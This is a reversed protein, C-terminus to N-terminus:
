EPSGESVNASGFVRALESRVRADSAIGRPLRHTRSGIRAMVPVTGPWEDLISALRDVQERSSVQVHWGAPTGTYAPREFAIVENASVSLEVPADEGNNAGRRERMRLRGKVILIRDQEFLGSVQPYLKSFVVVDIMGTTDELQAILIQQGAKTLTRRVSTIMGAITVFSDDERARLDKVAAAGTRSLADAVDALPHGSVFIGLTEKEWQLTQMTNPPPLSPLTPSLAHAVAPAEGFLSVQGMEEDRSEAAAIDMATELAAMKQARNGPLCDLAGCKVLAEFVRRNVQKTDVRKALDFLDKFAGGAERADLIVQVAGGGVGKIAALGFRIRDGVVAFDTRSQNLDPPLVSIGLKKAEEVYEVLKDTREKVSSMLAAFYPLPQNAKLYATQYAVSAYAAAHSKNFGYGAFPEIFEFIKAALHEDIDSHEKCGKIFKERYVPIKDKQKKGMVKRLEDAQGMSFGAVDRAMQMVQEQYCAVSYTESLIAELKPHLYSPKQRGHKVAVYTPIWEM